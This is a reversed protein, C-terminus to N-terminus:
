EQIEGKNNKRSFCIVTAELGKIYFRLIDDRELLIKINEPSDFPLVGDIFPLEPRAPAPCDPLSLVAPPTPVEPLRKGSCGTSCLVILAILAVRVPKM